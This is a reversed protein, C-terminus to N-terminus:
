GGYRWLSAVRRVIDLKQRLAVARSARKADREGDRAEADILKGDGDLAALQDYAALLHVVLCAIIEVAADRRPAELPAEAKSVPDLHPFRLQVIPQEGDFELPGDLIRRDLRHPDGIALRGLWAV